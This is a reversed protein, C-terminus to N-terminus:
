NSLTNSSIEKFLSIVKHFINGSNTGHICLVWPEHPIPMETFITVKCTFNWVPKMVYLDELSATITLSFCRDRLSKSLYDRTQFAGAQLLTKQKGASCVQSRWPEAHARGIEWAAAEMQLLLFSTYNGKVSFYSVFVLTLFPIFLALKEYLVVSGTICLVNGLVTRM